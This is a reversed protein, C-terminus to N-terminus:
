SFFGHQRRNVGEVSATYVAACPLLALHPLSHDNPMSTQHCLNPCYLQPIHLKLTPQCAHTIHPPINSTLVEWVAVLNITFNSLQAHKLITATAAMLHSPM